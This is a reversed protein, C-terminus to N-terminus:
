ALDNEVQRSIGVLVARFGVGDFEGGVASSGTM